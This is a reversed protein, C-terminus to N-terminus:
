GGKVKLLYAEAHHPGTATDWMQVEGDVQYTDGSHQLRDTSTVDASVPLFVRWRSVVRDQNLTQESSSVPQVWAVEDHAVATTWSRILNGKGDSVLPARIVSITHPFIM